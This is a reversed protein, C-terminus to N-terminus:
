WRADSGPHDEPRLVSERARQAAGGVKDAGAGFDKLKADAKDVADYFSAFNATFTASLAMTVKPQARSGPELADVLVSYVDVPLDLLEDYTWGMVRCIYLDSVTRERWGPSKKRAGREATMAADHAQIAELIERLSEPTQNRCRRPSSRTRSRRPDPDAQRRCGHDVLRASLEGGARHRSARPRAGAARGAQVHGAKIVQAHADREEGATLHKRVLLWDGGALELRVEEQKRYRSGM